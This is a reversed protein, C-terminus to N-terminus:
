DKLAFLAMVNRQLLFLNDDSAILILTEDGERWVAISEINDINSASPLEPLVEEPFCEPEAASVSLSLLLAPLLFKLTKM